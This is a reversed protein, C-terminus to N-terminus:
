PSLLPHAAKCTWTQHGPAARYPHWSPNWATPVWGCARACVKCELKELLQQLRNIQAMWQSNDEVCVGAHPLASTDSLSSRVAFAQELGLFGCSSRFRRNLGFGQNKTSLSKGNSVLYFMGFFSWLCMPSTTWARGWAAAGVEAGTPCLGVAPHGPHLYRDNADWFLPRNSVPLREETRQAWM